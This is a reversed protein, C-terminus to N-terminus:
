RRGLTSGSSLRAPRCPLPRTALQLCTKLPQPDLQVELQEVGGDQLPLHHLSPSACQLCRSDEAAKGMSPPQSKPREKAEKTAEEDGDEEADDAPKARKLAKRKLAPEAPAAEAENSDGAADEAPEANDAVMERSGWKSAKRLISNRSKRRGFTKSGTKALKRKGATAPEVMPEDVDEPLSATSATSARAKAKAKSKAKAKPNAEVKGSSMSARSAKSTAKSTAQFSDIGQEYGQEYGQFGQIGQGQEYGPFGQM